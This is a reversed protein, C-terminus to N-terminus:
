SGGKRLKPPLHLRECSASSDTAGIDSWTSVEPSNFSPCESPCHRHLADTEDEGEAAAIASHSLVWQM